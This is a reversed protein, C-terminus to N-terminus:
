WWGLVRGCLPLTVSAGWLMSLLFVGVEERVAALVLAIFSGVIQVLAILEIVM